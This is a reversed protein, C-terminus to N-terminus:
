FAYFVFTSNGLSAVRGNNIVVKRHTPIVKNGIFTGNSSGLDELIVRGDTAATVQLHRRSMMLDAAICVGADAGRGISTGEMPIIWRGGKAPGETCEIFGLAVKGQSDSWSVEVTALGERRQMLRVLFPALLEFTSASMSESVLRVLEDAYNQPVKNLNDFSILLLNPLFIRGKVKFKNDLLLRCVLRSAELVHLNGSESQKGEIKDEIAKELSRLIGM